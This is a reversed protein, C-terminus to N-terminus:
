GRGRGYSSGRVPGKGGRAAGAYSSPAQHPHNNAPPATHGASPGAPASGPAAWPQLLGAPIHAFRCDGLRCFGKTRFNICYTRCGMQTARTTLAAIEAAVTTDNALASPRNAGLSRRTQAAASAEAAKLAQCSYCHGGHQAGCPCMDQLRYHTTIGLVTGAANIADICGQEKM